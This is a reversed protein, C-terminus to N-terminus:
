SHCHSRTPHAAPVSPCCSLWGCVDNRREIRPECVLWGSSGIFGSVSVVRNLFVSYSVTIFPFLLFSLLLLYLLCDLVLFFSVFYSSLEARSAKVFKSLDLHELPFDVTANLKARAGSRGCDFRKLHIILVPPTKWVSLQKTAARPKKCKPCHWNNEGELSEEECFLALCRDLTVTEGDLVRGHGLPLSLYMFPDFKVSSHGCKRCTLASRLQGQFTDVIISKNRQLYGKWAEM